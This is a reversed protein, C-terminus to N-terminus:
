SMVTSSTFLFTDPVTVDSEGNVTPVFVPVIEVPLVLPPPLTPPPGPPPPPPTLM